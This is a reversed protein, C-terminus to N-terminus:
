SRPMNRLNVLIQQALQMATPRDAPDRALCKLAMERIWHPCTPTFTPIITGAVVRVMIASDSVPQGNAPNKLDEYPIHHTDFESLVCGFSYIDAAVTYEQDQVVEPAMWRFTGVGITMTAQIDEKSVGFDTLKTGKKSDLLINRSKIDRHIINMSHLYVLGNVISQIHVFKDKWPMATSNRTQLHTTLDGSDMLEMVCCIDIPRVWVAGIFKVIYPSDFTALLKIEDVFSELQRNTVRSEHLKKVAVSSGRYTGLWVDAFAGSGLKKTLQLEREELRLHALGTVNTMLSDDSVTPTEITSFPNAKNTKGRRKRFIFFGIVVVVVLAGVIAGVIIGINSKSSSSDNTTTTSNSNANPNLAKLGTLWNRMATSELPVCSNNYESAKGKTGCPIILGAGLKPDQCTSWTPEQRGRPMTHICPGYDINDTHMFIRPEPVDTPALADQSMISSHSYNTSNFTNEIACKTLKNTVDFHATQQRTYNGVPSPCALVTQDARATKFVWDTIGIDSMTTNCQVYVQLWRDTGNVTAVVLGMDWMLAQKTYNSLSNWSLGYKDLRAQVIAPPPVSPAYAGTVGKDSLTQFRTVYDSNQFSSM